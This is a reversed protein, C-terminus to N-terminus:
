SPWARNQLLPMLHFKEAQLHWRLRANEEEIWWCHNAAPRDIMARACGKGEAVELHGDARGVLKVGNIWNSARGQRALGVEAREGATYGIAM